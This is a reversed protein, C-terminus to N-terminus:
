WAVTLRPYYIVDYDEREKCEAVLCGLDIEGM